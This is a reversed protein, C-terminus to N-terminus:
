EHLVMEVRFAVGSLKGTLNIRKEERERERRELLCM